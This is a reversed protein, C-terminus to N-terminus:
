IKLECSVEVTAVVLECSVEATAVIEVTVAVLAIDEAAEVPLVASNLEEVIRAVEFESVLEVELEEASVVIKVNDLESVDTSIVETNNLLLESDDEEKASEVISIEVELVSIVVVVSSEVLVAKIVPVNVVVVVATVVAAVFM